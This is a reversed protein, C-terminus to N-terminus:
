QSAHVCISILGEALAHSQQQFPILPLIMLKEHNRVQMFREQFYDFDPFLPRPSTAERACRRM